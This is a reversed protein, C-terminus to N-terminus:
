MFQGRSSLHGQDSHSKPNPLEWLPSLGTLTGWPSPLGPTEPAAPSCPEQRMLYAVGWPGPGDQQPMEPSKESGVAGRHPGLRGAGVEAGQASRGPGEM